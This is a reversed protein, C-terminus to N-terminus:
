THPVSLALVLGANHFIPKVPERIFAVPVSSTNSEDCFLAAHEGNVSNLFPEVSRRKTETSVFHLKGGSFAPLSPQTTDKLIVVASVPVGLGALPGTSSTAPVLPMTTSLTLVDVPAELM